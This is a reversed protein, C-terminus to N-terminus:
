KIVHESLFKKFAPCDQDDQCSRLIKDAEVFDSRLPEGEELMPRIDEMVSTAWTRREEFANVQPDIRAAQLILPGHQLHIIEHSFAIVLNNREQRSIPIKKQYNEWYWIVLLSLNVRIIPNGAEYDAFMVPNVQQTSPIRGTLLQYSFEKKQVKDALWLLRKSTQPPLYKSNDTGLEIHGGLWSWFVLLESETAVVLPPEGPQQTPQVQQAKGIALLVASLVLSMALFRPCRLDTKM